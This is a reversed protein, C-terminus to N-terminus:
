ELHADLLEEDEAQEEDQQHIGDDAEQCLPVLIVSFNIIQGIIFNILFFGWWM